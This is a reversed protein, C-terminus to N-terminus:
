VEKNIGRVNGYIETFRMEATKLKKEEDVPLINVAMYTSLYCM